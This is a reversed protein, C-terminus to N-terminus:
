RHGGSRDVRDLLQVATLAQQRAEQRATAWLDGHVVSLLAAVRHTGIVETM